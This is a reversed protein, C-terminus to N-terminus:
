QAAGFDFSRRFSTRSYLDPHAVQLQPRAQCLGILGDSVSTGICRANTNRELELRWLPPHRTAWAWFAECDPDGHGGYVDATPLASVALRQLAPAAALAQVSRWLCAYDAGLECLGGLWPGAPLRAGIVFGELTCRRLQALRAITLPVGGVPLLSHVFLSTLRTLRRLAADLAAAADGNFPGGVGQLKLERLGTLNSLCNPLRRMSQLHLRTLSSLATLAADAAAPWPEGKLSLSALRPLGALLRTM